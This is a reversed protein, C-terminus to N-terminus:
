SLKKPLRARGNDLLGRYDMLLKEGDVSGLDLMYCAMRIALGRGGTEMRGDRYITNRWPAKGLTMPLNKLRDLTERWVRRRVEKGPAVPIGAREGLANAIVTGFIRLGIPRFILSGKSGDGGPERIEAASRSKNEYESFEPFRRIMEMWLASITAYTKEIDSADPRFKLYGKPFRYVANLVAYNFDYFAALSTFLETQSKRLNKNVLEMNTSNLTKIGSKLLMRTVISVVNDEDLAVNEGTTTARAYRNLTHFLRRTKINGQETGEHTVFVVSVEEKRLDNNLRIAEMISKLRHQGDLAFFEQKGDFKLLGFEFDDDLLPHDEMKVPMYQPKGGWTAVIIAGYFREPQRLLYDTMEKSRDKLQRQLLEDLTPSQDLDEFFQVKAAIEQFTMKGVFYERGGMKGRIVPILDAM